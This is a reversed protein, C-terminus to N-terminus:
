MQKGPNISSLDVEEDYKTRILNLRDNDGFAGWEM